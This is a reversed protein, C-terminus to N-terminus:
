INILFTQQQLYPKHILESRIGPWPLHWLLQSAVTLKAMQVNQRTTSSNCNKIIEHSISANEFSYLSIIVFLQVHATIIQIILPYLTVNTM